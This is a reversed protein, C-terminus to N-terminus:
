LAGRVKTDIAPFSAFGQLEFEGQREKATREAV